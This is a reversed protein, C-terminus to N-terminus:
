PSDKAPHFNIRVPNSLLVSRTEPTGEITSVDIATLDTSAPLLLADVTALVLTSDPPSDLGLLADTNMLDVKYESEETIVHAIPAIPQEDREVAGRLVVVVPKRPLQNDMWVRLPISEPYPPYLDITLMGLDTLRTNKREVDINGADGLGDPVECYLHVQAEVDGINIPLAAAADEPTVAKPPPVVVEPECGCCFVLCALVLAAWKM